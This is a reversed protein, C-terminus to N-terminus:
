RALWAWSSVWVSFVQTDSGGYKDSVTVRVKYLGEGAYAHQLLLSRKTVDHRQVATGDGYDIVV